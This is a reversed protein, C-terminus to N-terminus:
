IMINQYKEFEKNFTKLAKDPDNFEKSYEDDLFLDRLILNIMYVLQTADYNYYNAYEILADKLKDEIEISDDKKKKNLFENITKM